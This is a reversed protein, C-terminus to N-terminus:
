TAKAIAARSIEVIAIVAEIVEPPYPALKITADSLMQLASLLDPAAAILKANSEAEGERLWVANGGDVTAINRCPESDEPYQALVHQIDDCCGVSCTRKELTWPGPTHSM